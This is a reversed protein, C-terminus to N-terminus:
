VGWQMRWHIYPTIEPEEGNAGVWSDVVFERADDDIVNVAVHQLVLTYRIVLDGLRHHRILGAQIMRHLYTHTNVAESVCDLQGAEDWSNHENGPHDAWTGNRGGVFVEMRAIARAIAAREDQGDTDDIFLARLAASEEASFTIDSQQTCATASCAVLPAGLPDDAIVQDNGAMIAAVREQWDDTAPDLAASSEQALAAGAGVAITLWALWLARAANM